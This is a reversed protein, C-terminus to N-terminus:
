GAAPRSSAASPRAAGRRPSRRERLQGDRRQRLDVVRGDDDRRVQRARAGVRHRRRHRRRELALEALHRRQRLHRADRAERVRLDRQLEVEVAVDVGGCCSTCAAILAADLRRGACAASAASTSALAVRGVLRDQRERDARVDQREVLDVVVGVRDERLLDRLDGPTPRTVILPPCFGATRTCTSGTASPPVPSVGRPRACGREDRRVDVLGLAVDVARPLVVRERGVVLEELRVAELREDDGVRVARGHAQRVHGVDDVADLVRLEGAPCSSLRAIMRLTWRWGPALTMWTASRTFASSGCSWADSGCPISTFIRLSRVSVTRADTSSTSSVSTRVMPRTTATM